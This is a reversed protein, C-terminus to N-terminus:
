GPATARAARSRDLVSSREPMCDELPTQLAKLKKQEEDIDNHFLWPQTRGSDLVLTSGDIDVSGARFTLVYRGPGTHLSRPARKRDPYRDVYTRFADCRSPSTKLTDLLSAHQAYVAQMAAEQAMAGLVAAGGLGCALALLCRKVRTIPLSRHRAAFLLLSVQYAAGCSFLAIAPTLWSGVTPWSSLQQWCAALLYLYSILLLGGCAVSPVVGRRLAADAVAAMRFRRYMWWQTPVLVGVVGLVIPVM